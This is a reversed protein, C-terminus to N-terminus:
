ISLYYDILLESDDRWKIWGRLNQNDENTLDAEIESFKVKIWYGKMDVIDWCMEKNYVIESSDNALTYAPNNNYDNQSVCVTSKLFDFWSMLTIESNLRVWMRKNNIEDVIVEYFNGEKKLCNFNIIYFPEGIHYDKIKIFEDNNAEVFGTDDTNWKYIVTRYNSTDVPNEFFSITYDVENYMQEEFSVILKGIGFKTTTFITSDDTSSLQSKSQSHEELLSFDNPNAKEEIVIKEQKSKDELPESNNCSFASLLILFIISKNKM